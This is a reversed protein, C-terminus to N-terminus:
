ELLRMFLPKRSLNLHSYIYRKRECSRVAAVLVSVMFHLHFSFWHSVSRPPSPPIIGLGKGRLETKEDVHVGFRMFVPSEATEVTEIGEVTEVM